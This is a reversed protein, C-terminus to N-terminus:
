ACSLSREPSIRLTCMSQRAVMPSAPLESCLRSDIPLAPRLRQRPMRGVTRPTAIFGISWGCPPPSPRVAAACGGTEGHPTCVFPKLVRRLLRVWTIITRSLLTFYVHRTGDLLAREDIVVELGLHVLRAARAVLTRDLGPRAARRDHGVEDAQRDGHVVALLVDRHVDRLVHDPVLEALERHRADELAVRRCSLAGLLGHAAPAAARRGPCGRRCRSRCRGRRGRRGRGFFLCAPM